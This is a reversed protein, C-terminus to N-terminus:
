VQAPPEAESEDDSKKNFDERIDRGIDNWTMYLRKQGSKGVPYETQDEAEALKRAKEQRMEEQADWHRDMAEPDVKTLQWM